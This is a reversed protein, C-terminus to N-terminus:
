RVRVLYTSEDSNGARDSAEVVIRYTGPRAYKHRVTTRKRKTTRDGFDIKVRSKRVGSGASGDGADSVEVRVMRGSTRRVRAVPANGDVRLAAVPTLTSSGRRDIARVRLDHTGDATGSAPLRAATESTRLVVQGDLLVEYRLRGGGSEPRDWTIDLRAPDAWEEPPHVRFPQPPLSAAAAVVQTGAGDGQRFAILADGLGSGDVALDAIPGGRVGALRARADPSGSARQLVSVGDVGGDRSAWAAVIADERGAALRPVSEPIRTGITEPVGVGSRLSRALRVDAASGWAMLAHEGPAVGVSPASLAATDPGAPVAAGFAGAATDDGPALRSVFLTTGTLPSSTGPQQRVIAAADGFVGGSLSFADADGRIPTDGVKAPSIASVLGVRNSFLRRGWIREVGSDDPEVFAVVGNGFVDVTVKPGNDPTAAPVTYARNRNVAGLKTWTAGNLRAVRYESVTDGQRAPTRGGIATSTVVRYALFATGGANMVLSPDLADVGSAGQPAGVNRDISLPTEFQRAGRAVGAAYLRYLATTGRHAYDQAWVAVLRGDDGAALRPMYSNYPLSTDVRQAPWWRADAYRAVYIHSGSADITRYIVGGTGDSAMAVGGVEVIAPDPGAIVTPATIDAQAPAAAAASLAAALLVSRRMMRSAAVM